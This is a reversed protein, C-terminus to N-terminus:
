GGFCVEVGGLSARWGPKFTVRALVCSTSANRLNRVTYYM